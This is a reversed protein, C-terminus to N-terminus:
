KRGIGREYHAVIREFPLVYNYVAVEDLIGNWHATGDNGIAIHASGTYPASTHFPGSAVLTGNVYLYGTGAGDSAGVVHYITNPLFPASPAHLARNQRRVSSTASTCLSVKPKCKKREDRKYKECYRMGPPM